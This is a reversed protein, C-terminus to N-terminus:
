KISLTVLNAPKTDVTMNLNVTKRGILNRPVPGLNAQDLGVFDPSPGVFLVPLSEGGLTVPVNMLSSRGRFGTGFVILYVQETEGGLDIEIAEFMLTGQNFQSVPEFTQQGDKVRLVLAAAVGQGSANASFLGPAVAEIPVTGKGVEGMGSRQVSVNAMGQATAAPVLYNVQGPSVFFLPAPVNNVLVQTGDLTTPLPLMDAVIISTSMNQGFAAVIAEAALTAGFSAASVSAVNPVPAVASISTSTTYITDGSSAGNNNAANGAVYFTVQGIDTAPAKWTFTWQGVGAQVPNTGSTTHNIYQRTNGQVQASQLQTNNDNTTLTGAQKGSSDIATLQFGFRTRGAQTLTVTVTVDQGPTYSQPLGSIALTGGIPGGGHCDACTSEGPAGTVSAIPGLRNASVPSGSMEYVALLFLCVLLLKLCTTKM